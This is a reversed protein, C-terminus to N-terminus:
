DTHTLTGHLMLIMVKNTLSPDQRAQDCSSRSVFCIDLPIYRATTLRAIFIIPAVPSFFLYFLSGLTHSPIFQNTDPSNLWSMTMMVPMFMPLVVLRSMSM